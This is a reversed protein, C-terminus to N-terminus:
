EVDRSEGRGFLARSSSDGELRMQKTDTWFGSITTMSLQHLWTAMQEPSCPKDSELWWVIAGVGAQLIYSVTVCFFGFTGHATLVKRLLSM